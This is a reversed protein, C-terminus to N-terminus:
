RRVGDEGGGERVGVDITDGEGRGCMAPIVNDKWVVIAFWLDDTFRM